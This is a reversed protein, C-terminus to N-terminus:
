KKLLNTFHQMMESIKITQPCVGECARCAICASPRKTEPLAGIAMPALFGGGSYVHENYLEIIKPIDLEMPCHDTCYRCATCPLTTEATMTRAVEYLGALEQENLPKEESFTAVNEQLQKMDSMGSLTVVVEPFTELYRFAWEVASADPRYERLMAEYAPAPSALKGGRVPEMVWIPLHLEKLLEVKAKANQMKWDLWNLQIQCFEMHEGYAALFRKMTELTGHVSFGLHRIRGQRKQELLYELTEYQPDLYADINLECVNHVLYFDFYDTQCRMLQEPFIEKVKGMNKLDYGPFKTALYYSERPYRSLVEGLAKEADGGHYGWATDFYNIGNELAYAVMEGLADRDIRNYKGDCVPLRMTGLGLASLKLNQFAKYIM